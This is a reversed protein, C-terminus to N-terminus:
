KDSINSCHKKHCLQNQMSLYKKSILGNTLSQIIMINKVLLKIGIM